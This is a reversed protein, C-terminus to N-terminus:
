QLNRRIWRSLTQPSVHCFKEIEFRQNQVSQSDTSVRIYGYVMIFLNIYLTVDATGFRLFCSYKCSDKKRHKSNGNNRAFNATLHVVPHKKM